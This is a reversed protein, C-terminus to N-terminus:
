FPLDDIEDDKKFKDSEQVPKSAKSNDKYNGLIAGKEGAARREKGLDQTIFGDNGYQDPGNKSEFFCLALYKGNKGDIIATKDIKTVNISCTIM